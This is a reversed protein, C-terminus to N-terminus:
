NIIANLKTHDYCTGHIGCGKVILFKEFNNIFFIDILLIDIKSKFEKLNKKLLEYNYITAESLKRNNNIVEFSKEFVRYFCNLNLGVHYARILDINLPEQNTIKSLCFKRLRNSIGNLYINLEGYGKWYLL